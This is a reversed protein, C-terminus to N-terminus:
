YRHASASQRRRPFVSPRLLNIIRYGNDAVGSIDAGSAAGLAIYHGRPETITAPGTGFVETLCSSLKEAAFTEYCTPAESILVTWTSDVNLVDAGFAVPASVCLLCISLMLCITKKM